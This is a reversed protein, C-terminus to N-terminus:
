KYEGLFDETYDMMHKKSHFVIEWRYPSNDPDPWLSCTAFHKLIKMVSDTLVSPRLCWLLVYPKTESEDDGECCHTTYIEDFSNLWKITPIINKDVKAKKLTIKKAKHKFPKKM